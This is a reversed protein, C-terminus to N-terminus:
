KQFPIKTKFYKEVFKAFDSSFDKM